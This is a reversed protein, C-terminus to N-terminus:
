SVANICCSSLHFIHSICTFEGRGTREGNDSFVFSSPWCPEIEVIAYFGALKVRARSGRLRGGNEVKLEGAPSSGKIGASPHVSASDSKRRSRWKVLLGDMSRLAGGIWPLDCAEEEAERGSTYSEGEERPRRWSRGIWRLRGCVCCGSCASRM